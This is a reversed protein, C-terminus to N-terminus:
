HVIICRIDKHFILNRKICATQLIICLPGYSRDFIFLLYGCMFRIQANKRVTHISKEVTIPKEKASSSSPTTTSFMKCVLSICPDPM